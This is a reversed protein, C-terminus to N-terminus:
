EHTSALKRRLYDVASKEGRMERVRMFREIVEVAGADSLGAVFENVAELAVEPLKQTFVGPLDHRVAQGLIRLSHREAAPMKDAAAFASAHDSYGRSIDLNPPLPDVETTGMIIFPLAETRVWAELELMEQVLIMWAGTHPRRIGVKPWIDKPVHEGAPVSALIDGESLAMDNESIILGPSLFEPVITGLRVAAVAPMRHKSLNTHEALVKLPHAQDDDANFPQLAEVRKGLIGAAQLEPLTRLRKHNFWVKLAEPTTKVPMEIAQAESADLSRGMLHEVEAYLAHEMASRLQNLADPALRSVAEPIPKVSRVVVEERGDRVRSELEFPGVQLYDYLADGMREILGDAHAITYLMHSQHAPLWNSM